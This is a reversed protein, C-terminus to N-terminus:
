WAIILHSKIIHTREDIDFNERFVSYGLHKLADSVQCITYHSSILTYKIQTNGVKAADKILIEIDPYNNLIDEKPMLNRVEEATIM